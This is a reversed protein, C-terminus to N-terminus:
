NTFTNLKSRKENVDMSKTQNFDIEKLKNCWSIKIQKKKEEGLKKWDDNGFNNISLNIEITEVLNNIFDQMKKKIFYEFIENVTSYMHLFDKNKIVYLTWDFDEVQQFGLIGM